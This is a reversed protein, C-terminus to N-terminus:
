RGSAVWRLVGTALAGALRARSEERKLFAADGAHQLVAMEVTVVPVTSFVSGTLAGQQRGVFTASDGRIGNDRLLISLDAAMGAHVADAAAKSVTRVAAAPGVHGGAHGPRDPYYLAYGSGTGTDCHLRIFLAAGAANAIEARRRNTVFEGARSKTMVVAIGRARLDAALLQAITWTVDVERLGNQLARGANRESPHGPDICVVPAALLPALTILLLVFIWHFRM